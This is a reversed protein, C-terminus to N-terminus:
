KGRNAETRRSRVDENMSINLTPRLHDILMAELIDVREPEARLFAYADFEKRFSHQALRSAFNNTKGVYVVEDGLYLLYIGCERVLPARCQSAAILIQELDDPCRRRYEALISDDYRIARAGIRMPRIRGAVRERLLFSKSVGLRRAAEAEDFKDSM